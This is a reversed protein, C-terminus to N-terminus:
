LVNLEGSSANNCENIRQFRVIGRLEGINQPRVAPVDKRGAIINGVFLGALYKEGCVCFFCLETGFAIV